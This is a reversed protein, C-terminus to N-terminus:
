VSHMCFCLQDRQMSIPLVVFVVSRVGFSFSLSLIHHQYSSFSSSSPLFVSLKDLTCPGETLRVYVQLLLSFLRSSSASKRDKKTKKESKRTILSQKRYTFFAIFLTYVSSLLCMHMPQLQYESKFFLPFYKVTMGACVCVVSFFFSSSSSSM